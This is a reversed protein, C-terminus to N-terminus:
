NSGLLKNAEPTLLEPYYGTKIEPMIRNERKNKYIGTSPNVRREGYKKCLINLIIKFIQYLSHNMLYNPNKM